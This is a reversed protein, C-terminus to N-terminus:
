LMKTQEQAIQDNKGRKKREYQGVKQIQNISITLSQKNLFPCQFKMIPLKIVIERHLFFKEFLFSFFHFRSFFEPTIPFYRNLISSINARVKSTFYSSFGSLKLKGIPKQM